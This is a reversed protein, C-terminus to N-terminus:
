YYGITMVKAAEANIINLAVTTPLDAEEMNQQVELIRVHLEKAPAEANLTRALQNVMMLEQEKVGKVTQWVNNSVYIQQSLNHEFEANINFTITHQLDQVTMSSDYVRPIIQRATIREIFLVLREYAQLKLRLTVDQTDKFIAMQKRQMESVLFKNVILYSSVLVIIAPITYKLIDLLVATIDM